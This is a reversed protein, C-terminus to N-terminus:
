TGCFTRYCATFAAPAPQAFDIYEASEVYPQRVAALLREFPLLDNSDSAAALAEMHHNRAILIPNVGRMAEARENDAVCVESACRRKWGALWLELAHPEGFLM